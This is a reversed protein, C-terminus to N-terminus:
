RTCSLVKRCLCKVLVKTPSEGAPWVEIMQDPNQCRYGENQSYITLIEMSDLCPKKEIVPAVTADVVKVKSSSLAVCLITVLCFLAVLWIIPPIDKFIKKM